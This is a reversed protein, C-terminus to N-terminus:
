ARLTTTATGTRHAVTLTAQIKLKTKHRKATRGVSTLPVTIVHTGAKLAKKTTTKLGKGTIKVTGTEGLKVTVLLNNAKIATKSISLSPPCGTVGIPTNQTIELGNQAKFRTPMVLKQGCLSGKASAPLNAAFESAPGAPLTVEISEFPTDPTNAFTASTVNTKGNIFTEGVLDVTVGDGKLIIVADPFKAGGYSVFYVPGELPVPLVQTHVVAHGILSGPPCAAPNSEFVKALCAKQITTLRAPLQKPIDFKTYKFWSNSGQAGKPYSIKFNLSAGNAKSTKAASTVSLKPQFRLTACNTVQFPVSVPSAAGETSGITGTVSQPNCNTPNFTFGPRNVNVNVHKIQLPFGDIIHPIQGTTITLAATRPDIEIKARVVVPKGEQLNFPGAKAPNVISLGFPAGQYKETLYVKGGTVTFPDGGLGVSVITEGIQSEPGCTGANAQAEPCLPVGKLIGSLGPPYHLVVNQINQNGDERGLTTTLATFAGANINTTGSALSPAFPLPSQCPTGNPGSTINFSSSSQAPSNETSPTFSAQTTYTGCSAPTSLPARNGGFFHLELDEFPLQPTDEFTSVLQGTVPDPTVRGPLKVLVGSVPDQAVIYMAVLSSFPNELPGAFNQPAALYVAGELPNPLLPTKIRVSAVKSADPCSPAASTFEDTGTEPNVGTFGIQALSCASLGDAASPSLQVGAPLAVTTDKVDASTLGTPNLAPTQAVHVGVTLGTPTSGNQGDTAVQISPDFPLRNCGTMGLPGTGEEHLVYTSQVPATPQLWSTAEVTATFPSSLGSCSAPLSLFPAQKLGSTETCGAVGFENRNLCEGRALDHRPDGPVGWFSLQSGVFSVEQSIDHVTVVVGYDGGTRVSTDLFVPVDGLGSILFGFRAPEGASPELNYVPLTFSFPQGATGELAGAGVGSLFVTVVGVQTAPPCGGGGRFDRLPCQPVAGPDGILGPPLDFTLDKPFVLPAAVLEAFGGEIAPDSRERAETVTQNYSLTTTFQFPHSGAQTDLSGDENLPLMEFRELGFRVPAGSVTLPDSVSVAPAGGGSASMQVPGSQAGKAVVVHIVIEVPEYIRVEPPASLGQHSTSECTLSALVCKMSKIPQLRVGAMGKDYSISTATVGAPLKASIRLPDATVSALTDGLNTVTVIVVGDSRGPKPVAVNAPSGGFFSTNIPLVERDALGGVFRVVYPEAETVVSPKGKPGESVEVNGSGYLGELAVQVESAEANYAFETKKLEGETINEEFYAQLSLPEVVVVSGGTAEVRIEQVTSEAAGSSLNAPAVIARMNWAPGAALAPAGSFVGAAMLLSMTAVVALPLRRSICM